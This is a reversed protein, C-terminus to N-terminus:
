IEMHALENLIRCFEVNYNFCHWLGVTCMIKKNGTLVTILPPNQLFINIYFFICKYTHTIYIQLM